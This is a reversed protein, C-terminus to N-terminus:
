SRQYLQKLLRTVSTARLSHDSNGEVGIQECMYKMMTGLANHGIQQAVFWSTDDALPLKKKSKWYLM